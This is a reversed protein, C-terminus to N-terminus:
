GRSPTKGHDGPAVAATGSRCRSPATTGGASARAADPRPHPLREPELDPALQAQPYAGPDPREDPAYGGVCEPSRFDSWIRWTTSHGPSSIRETMSDSAGCGSSSRLTRWRWVSGLHYSLPHYAPNTMSLTRIGWGSFMDPEFLRKVVRPLREKDIIGTTLCQGANSTISRILRKQPDLGFGVIGEEEMWFDRNFRAKLERAQQWLELGYARKGLIEAFIAMFQLAAFWYGQIECPAIPTDVQSGAADVVANDSDKWGQHRPGDPARTEYELYRDDDMDAYEREWDLVRQATDWHRELLARDGSWAYANGMALIFMFPSSFDGYYLRHSKGLRAALNNSDSGRFPARLVTRAFPSRFSGAPGRRSPRRSFTRDRSLDLEPSSSHHSSSVTQVHRKAVLLAVEITM